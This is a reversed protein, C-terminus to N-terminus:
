QIVLSTNGGMKESEERAWIGTIGELQNTGGYMLCSNWTLMTLEKQTEDSILRHCSVEGQLKAENTTCKKNDEIPGERSRNAENLPSILNTGCVRILINIYTTFIKRIDRQGHVSKGFKLFLNWSTTWNILILLQTKYEFYTIHRGMSIYWM